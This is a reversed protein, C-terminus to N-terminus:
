PIVSIPLSFSHVCPSLPRHLLFAFQLSQQVQFPESCWLLASGKPSFFWKHGDSFWHTCGAEELARLDVDVQGLVHAADLAIPVDAELEERAARCLDMVPMVCGPASSIHDICVLAVRHGESVVSRLLQGLASPLSEGGPGTPKSGGGPFEVQLHRVEAKKASCELLLKNRVMGYATSLTICVDGEEIKSSSIVANAASSCNECFLLDEMNCRVYSSLKRCTEVLYEQYTGRMWVDPMKECQRQYRRQARLVERAPTGWSSNLYACSRDVMFLRKMALTGPLPASSAKTKKARHSGRRKRSSKKSGGVVTDSLNSLSGFSDSPTVTPSSLREELEKESDDDSVSSSSASDSYDEQRPSALDFSWPSDPSEGSLFKNPLLQISLKRRESTMPPGLTFLEGASDSRLSVAGPIGVPLSVVNTDATPIFGHASM